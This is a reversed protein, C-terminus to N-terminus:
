GIHFALVWRGRSRAVRFLILLEKELYPRHDWGNLSRFYSRAFSLALTQALTRMCTGLMRSNSKFICDTLFPHSSCRIGLLSPTPKGSTSARMLPHGVIQYCMGLARSCLAFTRRRRCKCVHAYGIRSCCNLARRSATRAFIVKHSLRM